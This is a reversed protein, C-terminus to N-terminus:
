STGDRIRTKKLHSSNNQLKKFFTQEKTGYFIKLNRNSTKRSEMKRKMIIIVIMPFERFMNSFNFTIEGDDCDMDDHNAYKRLANCM